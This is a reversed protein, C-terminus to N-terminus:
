WITKSKCLEGNQADARFVSHTETLIRM